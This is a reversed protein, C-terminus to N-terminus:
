FQARFKCANFQCDLSTHLNRLKRFRASCGPVEQLEDVSVDRAFSDGYEDVADEIRPESQATTFFMHRGWTLLSRQRWYDLVKGHSWRYYCLREAKTRKAKGSITSFGLHDSSISMAVSACLQLTSPEKHAM